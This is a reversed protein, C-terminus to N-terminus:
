ITAQLARCQPHKPRRPEFSQSAPLTGQPLSVVSLMAVRGCIRNAVDSGAGLSLDLVTEFRSLVILSDIRHCCHEATGCVFTMCRSETCHYRGVPSWLVAIM